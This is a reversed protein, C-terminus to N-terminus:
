NNNNSDKEIIKAFKSIKDFVDETIINFLKVNPYNNLYNLDVTCMKSIYPFGENTKDIVAFYVINNKTAYAVCKKCVNDAQVIRAVSASKPINHYLVFGAEKNCIPCMSLIAVSKVENMM